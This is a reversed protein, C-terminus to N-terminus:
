NFSDSHKELMLNSFKETGLWYPKKNIYWLINQKKEICYSIAWSLFETTLKNPAEVITWYYHDLTKTYHMIMGSNEPKFEEPMSEIDLWGCSFTKCPDIPRKNYIKCGKNIELFYCAKGNGINNNIKFETSHGPIESNKLFISGKINAILFGECCKTCSGCNKKM